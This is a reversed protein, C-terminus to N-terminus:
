CSVSSEKYKITFRIRFDHGALGSVRFLQTQALHSIRWSTEGSGLWGSNATLSLNHNFHLSLCYGSRQESLGPPCDTVLIESCLTWDCMGEQVGGKESCVQSSFILKNLQYFSFLHLHIVVSLFSPSSELSLYMYIIKIQPQLTPITILPQLLPPRSICILSKSILAILNDKWISIFFPEM